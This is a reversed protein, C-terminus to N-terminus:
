GEVRGDVSVSVSGVRIRGDRGGGFVRGEVEGDVRPGLYERRGRVWYWVVSGLVVAGTVVVSYNMSEADVPTAPPWVSFFIVFVMYTCAYANNIIGLPPARPLSFPGWTLPPLAISLTRPPTPTTPTTTTTPSNTDHSPPPSSQTPPPTPKPSPKLTDDLKDDPLHKEANGDLGGVVGDGEVNEVGHMGEEADFPMEGDLGETESRKIYPAVDGRLRRWLLFAAPLLYSCYFGTITLSVVDNFAVSSGFYICQLAMALACVVVIANIPVKNWPAVRGLFDSFPTGKDRAFSWTMRSATTTIGIACSWTLVLVVAGMATAGARSGVANFFIQIFPFVKDTNLVSEVDGLCFLITLMMTFGVLGNLCMSAIVARPINLAANEVEEALHVSADAGVFTAVNGLFGVCYSLGQTPWGGENFATTFVFDATGISATSWLTALVAVFGAVHFFIIFIEFKPLLGPLVANVFICVLVVMWALLTGQWQTPSYDPHSLVILGQLITGAFITETAVTAIWALSTQIQLLQNAFHLLSM